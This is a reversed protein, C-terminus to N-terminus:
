VVPELATGISFGATLAVGAGAEALLLPLPLAGVPESSPEDFLAM